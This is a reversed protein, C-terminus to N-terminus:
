LEKLVFFEDLGIICHTSGYSPGFSLLIQNINAIDLNPNKLYFDGARFYNQEIITSIFSNSQLSKFNEDNVQNLNKRFGYNYLNSSLSAMNNSVDYLTLTFRCDLTNGPIKLPISTQMGYSSGSIGYLYDTPLGGKLVLYSDNNLSIPNQFTYGLFVNQNKVEFQLGKYTTTHFQHFGKSLALSQPSIDVFNSIFNPIEHNSLKNRFISGSDNLNNFSPNDKYIRNSRYDQCFDYTFGSVISSFNLTAGTSGALSLTLGQFDDIYFNIDSSSYKITPFGYNKQIYDYNNLEKRNFFRIKKIKNNNFNNISLFNLLERKLYKLSNFISNYFYDDENRNCYKPFAPRSIPTAATLITNISRTFRTDLIAGADEGNHISIGYYDHDFHPSLITITESLNKKTIPDFGRCYTTVIETGTGVDSDFTSNLCLFPIYSFKFEDDILSESLNKLNSNDSSGIDIGSEIVNGFRASAITIISKFDSYSIDVSNYPSLLSNKNKIYEPVKTIIGSGRSHGIVNIKNFNILNNFLGNSIKNKYKKIHNILLIITFTSFNNQLPGDFCEHYIGFCVYGYSALTSWYLDYDEPMQGAGHQFFLVPCIQNKSINKPYFCRIKEYGFLSPFENYVLSKEEDSFDNTNLLDIIQFDVDYPGDFIGNLIYNLDQVIDNTLITNLNASHTTEEVGGEEYIRIILKYNKYLNCIEDETMDDIIYDHSITSNLINLTVILSNNILMDSTLSITESIITNNDTLNDILRYYLSYSTINGANITKSLLDTIASTTCTFSINSNSYFTDNIAFPIDTTTTYTSHTIGTLTTSIM